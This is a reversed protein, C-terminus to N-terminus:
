VEARRGPARFRRVAVFAVVVLAVVLVGSAAFARAERGGMGGDGAPQPSPSSADPLDAALKRSGACTSTQVVGSDRNGYIRWREGEAVEVSVSTVTGAGDATRTVGTAVPVVRAGSGKVYGDVRFRQVGSATPGELAVGDFIVDARARQEAPTSPICSAYASTSLAGAIGAVLLILLALRGVMRSVYAAPDADTVDDDRDSADPASGRRRM